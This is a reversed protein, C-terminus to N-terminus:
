HVTPSPGETSQSRPDVPQRPSSPQGDNSRLREIAQRAARHDPKLRLTNEYAALAALQNSVAEWVQGLSYHTDYWAPAILTCNKLDEIAPKYEGIEFEAKGRLLHADASNPHLELASTLTM